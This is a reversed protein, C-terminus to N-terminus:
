LRCRMSRVPEQLQGEGPLTERLLLKIVISQVEDTGLENCNWACRNGIGVAALLTLHLHVQIVAANCDLPSRRQVHDVRDASCFRIRGVPVDLIPQSLTRRKSIGLAAGCVISSRFRIGILVTPLVVM